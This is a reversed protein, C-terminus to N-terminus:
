KDEKKEKLLKQYTNYVLESLYNISFVSTNIIEDINRINDFSFKERDHLLREKAIKPDDGRKLMRNLRISEECNLFIAYINDLKSNKFNQLGVPDLVVVSDDKVDEKSSGYYYGNFCTTEVFFDKEKLELFKEESVFHYDVDDVENVRKPRTTYTIIKKMEYDNKLVNAIETKGSASHGVLILM